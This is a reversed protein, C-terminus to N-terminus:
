AEGPVYLLVEFRYWVRPDRGVPDFMGITVRQRVLVSVDWTIILHDM